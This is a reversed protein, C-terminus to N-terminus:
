GRSRLRRAAATAGLGALALMFTSPEPVQGFRISADHLTATGNLGADIVIDHRVALSNWPGFDVRSFLTSDIASSAVINSVAPNLCLDTGPCLDAIGVVVGDGSTAAGSIALTSYTFPTSDLPTVVFAVVSQLIQSSAATQDYIFQLGSQGPDTLPIIRVDGPNIETGPFFVGPNDFQSLVVSGARCGDSGLNLYDNLTGAGCDLPASQLAALFSLMFLFLRIM